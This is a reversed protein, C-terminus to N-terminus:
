LLLYLDHKRHFTKTAFCPSNQSENHVRPGEVSTYSKDCLGTKVSNKSPSKLFILDFFDPAKLLFIIFRFEICIFSNVKNFLCENKSILIRYTGFTYQKVNCDIMNIIIIQITKSNIREKKDVNNM